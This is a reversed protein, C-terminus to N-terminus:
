DEKSNHRPLLDILRRNLIKWKNDATPEEGLYHTLIKYALSNSDYALFALERAALERELSDPDSLRKEFYRTTRDIDVPSHIMLYKQLVDREGEPPDKELMGLVLDFFDNETLNEEDAQLKQDLEEDSKMREHLSLEEWIEEDERIGEGSFEDLIREALSNPKRALKGLEPIVFTLVHQNADHLFRGLYRAVRDEDVYSYTVVYAELIDRMEMTTKTELMDFVM